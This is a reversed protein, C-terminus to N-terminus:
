PQIEDIQGRVNIYTGHMTQLTLVIDRPQIHKSSFSMQQPQDTLNLYILGNILQITKTQDSQVLQFSTPLCRLLEGVYSCAARDVVLTGKRDKSGIRITNHKVRISVDDYTRVTGDNQQVRVTGTAAAQAVSLLYLALLVPITRLVAKAGPPLAIDM